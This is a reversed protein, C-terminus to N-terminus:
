FLGYGPVNWGRFLGLFFGADDHCLYYGLTELLDTAVERPAPSVRGLRVVFLLFGPYGTAVLLQLFSNHTVRTAGGEPDNPDVPYFPRVLLVNDPGVGFLPYDKSIMLAVGWEHIRTVASSEKEYSRITSARDGYSQEFDPSVTVLFGAIAVILLLTMLIPKGSKALIYAGVVILTLLGGRSFTFIIAAISGFGSVIAGARILRHREVLAVGVLLPLAMNLALAFVNNDTMFGGPGSSIRAGGRLLGYVGFKLGLLGLSFAIVLYLM